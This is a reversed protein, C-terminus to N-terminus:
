ENRIGVMRSSVTDGENKYVLVIEIRRNRSKMTSDANAMLNSELGWNVSDGRQIPCYEGFSSVSMKFRLPDINSRDKFCKWIATSRASALELNSGFRSDKSPVDTDAHGEIKIETFWAPQKSIAAGLKALLGSREDNLHDSGPDFLVSAGFTFRQTYNNDTTSVSLTDVSGTSLRLPIRYTYLASKVHSRISDFSTGYELAAEIVVARQRGRVDAAYQRDQEEQKSSLASGLIFLGLLAMALDTGPGFLDDLLTYAQGSKSM